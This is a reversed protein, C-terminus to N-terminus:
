ILIFQDYVTNDYSIEPIKAVYIKAFGSKTDRGLPLTLYPFSKRGQVYFCGPGFPV